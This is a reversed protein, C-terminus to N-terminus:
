GVDKDGGLAEVVDVFDGFGSVSFPVQGHVDANHSASPMFQAQNDDLNNQTELTYNDDYIGDWGPEERSTKPGDEHPNHFNIIDEGIDLDRSVKQRVASEVDHESFFNGRSTLFEVSEVHGLSELRDLQQRLYDKDQKPEVRYDSQMWDYPTKGTWVLDSVEHFGPWGEGPHGNMFRDYIDTEWGLADAFKEAATPEEWEDFDEETLELREGRSWAYEVAAKAVAPKLSHTADEIDIAINYSEIDGIREIAYDLTDEAVPM